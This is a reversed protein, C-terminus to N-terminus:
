ARLMDKLIVVEFSCAHSLTASPLSPTPQLEKSKSSLMPTQHTELVTRFLSVMSAWVDVSSSNFYERESEALEGTKDIFSFM